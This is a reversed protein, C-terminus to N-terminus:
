WKKSNVDKLMQIDLAQDAVLRKLRRNEEELEKLRKAESIEMGGYKSKWRYFTQESIGHKRVIEATPLGAESEKLIKIIQEETHRKRKMRNKPNYCSM